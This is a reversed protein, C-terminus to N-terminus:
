KRPPNNGRGGGSKNGTTSPGNPPRGGGGKNGGGSGKGGSSGSSKGMIHGKQCHPRSIAWWPCDADPPNCKRMLVLCAHRLALEIVVHRTFILTALRKDARPFLAASQYLEHDWARGIHSFAREFVIGWGVPGDEAQVTGEFKGLLRSHFLARGVQRFLADATDHDIRTGSFLRQATKDKTANLLESAPGGIDADHLRFAKVILGVIQGSTPLVSQSRDSGM